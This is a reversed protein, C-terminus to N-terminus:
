RIGPLQIRLLLVRGRRLRKAFDSSNRAISNIKNTLSGGNKALGYFEILAQEVSRADYISLPGLQRLADSAFKMGHEVQRRAVNHTIGM